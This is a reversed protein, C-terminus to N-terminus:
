IVKVKKMLLYKLDGFTFNEFKKKRVKLMKIKRRSGFNECTNYNITNANSVTKTITPFYNIDTECINNKSTSFSFINKHKNKKNIANKIKTNEKFFNICPFKCLNKKYYQNKNYDELYKNLNYTPHQEVLRKYMYLNQQAMEMINKKVAGVNSGKRKLDANNDSFIKGFIAKNKNSKIEFLNKYLKM